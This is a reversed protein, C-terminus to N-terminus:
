CAIARRRRLLGAAALGALALSAPEPTSIVVAIENANNYDYNVGYGSPLNLTAFTGSQTGYNAIVYAADDAAAGGAVQTFNLTAGSLNLAGTVNLVDNTGAGTGDYKANYAGSLSLASLQLSGITTGNGPAITGGAVLTGAVTGNGSVTGAYTYSGGTRASVDFTAGSAISISPSSDISGGTKLALTGGSIATAGNYTNAGTLTLANTGQKTLGGDASGTGTTHLIANSIGLAGATTDIVAGGGGGVDNVTFQANKGNFLDTLAVQTKLTGGNFNVVNGTATSDQNIASGLDLEGSNLNVTGVGTSHGINFHAAITDTVVKGGSITLVGTTGTNAIVTNALNLVGGSVNILGGSSLTSTSNFTGGNVNLTGNMLFAASNNFTGSTDLTTGSAVTSNTTASTVTGGFSFTGAGTLNLLKSNYNLSNTLILTRGGAVTWTQTGGGLVVPTGITLNATAASMDIGGTYISISNTGQTPITIDAGPNKIVIGLAGIPNGITNNASGAVTGDLTNDWILTITSSPATTNASGDLWAAAHDLNTNTNARTLSTVAARASSALVLEGVCAVCAALVQKRHNLSFVNM